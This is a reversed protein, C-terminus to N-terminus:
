NKKQKNKDSVILTTITESIKIKDLAGYTDLILYKVTEPIKENLIDTGRITLHTTTRPVLKERYQISMITLHTVTEPIKGNFRKCNIILHTM